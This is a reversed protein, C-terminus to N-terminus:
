PRHFGHKRALHDGFILGGGFGLFAGVLGAINWGVAAGILGMAISSWASFGNLLKRRDRGRVDPFVWDYVHKAGFDQL